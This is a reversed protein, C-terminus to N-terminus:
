FSIVIEFSSSLIVFASHFCSDESIEQASRFLLIALPSLNHPASAHFFVNFHPFSIILLAQISVVLSSFFSYHYSSAGDSDEHSDSPLFMFSFFPSVECLYFSVQYLFGLGQLFFPPLTPFCLCNPVSSAFVMSFFQYNIKRINFQDSGSSSFCM